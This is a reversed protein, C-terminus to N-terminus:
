SGPTVTVTGDGNFAVSEQMQQQDLEIARQDEAIQDDSAGSRMDEALKDQDQQLQDNMATRDSENSNPYPNSDNSSQPNEENTSFSNGNDSSYAGGTPSATEDNWSYAQSSTEGNNSYRGGHAFVSPAAILSGALIGGLAFSKYGYKKM